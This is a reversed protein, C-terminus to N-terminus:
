SQLQDLAVADALLTAAFSETDGREIADLVAQLFLAFNDAAPVDVTRHQNHQNVRLQCVRDSPPSFVRDLTVTTDPGLVTLRNIYGTTMGFHGVLSRGGPYTALVSFANEVQSSSPTFSRCIVEHPADGFFLRGPTVAYPGLDLLAGGGLDADNRFNEPELPPFSFAAVLQTPQSGVEEFLQRAVAIQPHYGYVTAEALLRDQSQALQILHRATSLDTTAPKDIVVHHGTELAMAALEAHLSNVVSIYVLEAESQRLAEAYDRFIRTGSRGPPMEEPAASRTAIEIHQVGMAALTPLVRRRAISSYGLLLVQM